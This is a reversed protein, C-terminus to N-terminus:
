IIEFTPAASSGIYATPFLFGDLIPTGEGLFALNKYVFDVKQALLM